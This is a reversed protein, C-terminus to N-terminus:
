RPCPGSPKMSLKKQIEDAQKKTIVGSAAAQSVLKATEKDMASIFAEPSVCYADLIAQPPSAILLQKVNEQSLGTLGAIVNTQMCDHILKIGPNAPPEMKGSFPPPAMFAGPMQPPGAHQESGFAATSFVIGGALIMALVFIHKKM